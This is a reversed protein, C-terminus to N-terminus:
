DGTDGTCAMFLTCNGLGGDTNFEEDEDEDEDDPPNGNLLKTCVMSLAIPLHARRPRVPPLLEEELELELELLELLDEVELREGM